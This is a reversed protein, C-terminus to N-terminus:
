LTCPPGRTCTRICTISITKCTPIRCSLSFLYLSSLRSQSGEDSKAGRVKPLALNQDLGISIRFMMALSLTTTIGFFLLVFPKVVPYLIFNAFAGMITHMVDLGKRPDFM